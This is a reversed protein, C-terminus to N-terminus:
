SKGIITFLTDSTAQATLCEIKLFRVAMLEGPIDYYRSPTVTMLVRADTIDYVPFYTGGLTDSMQFQIQTGDFNSPVILGWNRLGELDSGAAQLTAGTAVTATLVVNIGTTLLGGNSLSTPLLAQIDTLTALIDTLTAPFDGVQDVTRSGEAGSVLGLAILQVEATDGSHTVEYGAIKPAAPDLPAYYPKNDAM